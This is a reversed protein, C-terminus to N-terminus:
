GAQKAGKLVSPNGNPCGLESTLNGRPPPPFSVRSHEQTLGSILAASSTPCVKIMLTEVHEQLRRGVALASPAGDGLYFCRQGRCIRLM